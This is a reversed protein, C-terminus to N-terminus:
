SISLIIKISSPRMTATPFCSSSSSRQSSYRLVTSSCFSSSSNPPLHNHMFVIGQQKRAANDSQNRNNKYNCICGYFIFFLGHPKFTMHIVSLNGAAKHCVCFGIRQSKNEHANNHQERNCEVNYRREDDAANLIHDNGIELQVFQEYHDSHICSYQNNGHDACINLSNHQLLCTLSDDGM